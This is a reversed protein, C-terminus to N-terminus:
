RARIRMGVTAAARTFIGDRVQWLRARPDRITVASASRDTTYNDVVVDADPQQARVSAAISEAAETVAARYTTRLIQRTGQRSPRYVFVDTV